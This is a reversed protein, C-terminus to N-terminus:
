FDAFAASLRLRRASAGHWLPRRRPRAVKHTHTIGRNEDMGRKGVQSLPAPQRCRCRFFDEFVHQPAHEVRTLDSAQKRQNFCLSCSRIFQNASRSRHAPVHHRNGQSFRCSHPDDIRATRTASRLQEVDRRDRCQNSRARPRLDDLVPISAPSTSARRLDHLGQPHLDFRRRLDLGPTNLM